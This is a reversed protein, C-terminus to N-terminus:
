SDLFKFFLVVAKQSASILAQFFFAVRHLLVLPLAEFIVWDVGAEDHKFVSSM